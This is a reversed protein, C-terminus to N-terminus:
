RGGDNEEGDGDAIDEDGPGMAEEESGFVDEEEGEVAYREADDPSLTEIHESPDIDLPADLPTYADPEDAREDLSGQLEDIARGVEVLLGSADDDAIESVRRSALLDRIEILRELRENVPVADSYLLDDIETQSITEELGLDNIDGDEGIDLEQSVVTESNSPEAM